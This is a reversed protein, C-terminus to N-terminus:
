ATARRASQIVRKIHQSLAFLGARRMFDNADEGVQESMWYPLGTAEAAKQGTLSEDNDAVVIGTKAMHTLNHASFCAVVSRSMRAAKVAQHISLATAYGECYIPEGAGITFVAGKTQQGFLFKKSGDVEILQVGVVAGDVRMPVALVPADSDPKWVVGQLDPFGKRSLYAHTGMRSESIIQNAKKAAEARATRLRAQERQAAEAIAKHDIRVNAEKDPQWTEVSTMTAHNQVFGHDGMWKVAGNRKTGKDETKYRRWVGIPPLSDIVIGHARCFQLFDSVSGGELTDECLRHAQIAGM